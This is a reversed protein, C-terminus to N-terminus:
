TSFYIFKLYLVNNLHNVYSQERKRKRVQMCVCVCVCVCMNKCVKVSM